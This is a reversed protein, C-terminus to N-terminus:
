QVNPFSGVAVRGGPAADPEDSRDPYRRLLLERDDDLPNEFAPPEGTRHGIQRCSSLFPDIQLSGLGIM